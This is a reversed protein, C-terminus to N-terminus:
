EGFAFLVATRAGRLLGAMAHALYEGALRAEGVSNGISGVDVKIYYASMEANFGGDSLVVPMCLRQEGGNLERRLALALSLNGIVDGRSGSVSLRIQASGLASSTAVARGEGDVEALRHLDLIYRISPYVSLMTEITDAAAIYPNVGGDGDHIVTCHVTPIGLRELEGALRAGAWVVSTLVSPSAPDADYYQESTHTHLILVLPKGSGDAREGFFGVDLLNEADVILQSYNIVYGDGKEALSLDATVVGVTEDGEGDTAPPKSEVASEETAKESEEAVSEEANETSHEETIDEGVGGDSNKEGDGSPLGHSVSFAILQELLEGTMNRIRDAGLWLTVAIALACVALIAWIRRAGRTRKDRPVIQKEGSAYVWRGEGSKNREM